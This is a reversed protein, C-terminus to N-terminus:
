AFEKAMTFVPEDDNPWFDATTFSFGTTAVEDVDTLTLTGAVIQALMDMAEKYKFQAYQPRKTTDESYRLAYHFAAILRGAIARVLSPTSEPDAWAALTAVSYVNGLYGKIIREADLQLETDAGTEIELKDTPLHVNIEALTALSAM